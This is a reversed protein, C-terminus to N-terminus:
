GGLAEVAMVAFVGEQPVLVHHLLVRLVASLAVLAQEGVAAVGAGQGDSAVVLYVLYSESKTM